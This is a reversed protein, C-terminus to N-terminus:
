FLMSSALAFVKGEVIIREPELYMHLGTILLSTISATKALHLVPCLNAFCNILDTGLLIRLLM